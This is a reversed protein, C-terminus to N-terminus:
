CEEAPRESGTQVVKQGEVKQMCTDSDSREHIYGLVEGHNHGEVQKVDVDPEEVCNNQTKTKDEAVTSRQEKQAMTVTTYWKNKACCRGHHMPNETHCFWCKDPMPFSERPFCRQCVECVSRQTAM